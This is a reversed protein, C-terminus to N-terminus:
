RSTPPSSPPHTDRDSRDGRGRRRRRRRQSPVDDDEDEDEDGVREVYPTDSVRRGGPIWGGRPGGQRRELLGLWGARFLGFAVYAVTL